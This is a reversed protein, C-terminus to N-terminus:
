LWWWTVSHLNYRALIRRYSKWIWDQLWELRPLFGCQRRSTASVGAINRSVNIDFSYNNVHFYV